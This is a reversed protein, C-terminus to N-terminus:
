KTKVVRVPIGDDFELKMARTKLYDRILHIDGPSVFRLSPTAAVIAKWEASGKTTHAAVLSLVNGLDINTGFGGSSPLGDNGVSPAWGTGHHWTWARFTGKVSPLDSDAPVIELIYFQNRCHSALTPYLKKSFSGASFVVPALSGGAATQIKPHHKHGHIVLWRGFKGTGLLELLRQGGVIEDYEGLEHESHKLPHHHCMLINILPIPGALKAALASLTAPEIRGREYEKKREGDDDSELGHYASSNLVVIRYNDGDLITFYDAWFGPSDRDSIPFNPVLGKLADFKELKFGRSVVDHNGVTAVVPKAGLKAAVEQLKQWVYKLPTPESYQTMDGPCLVVDATLRDDPNGILELLAMIPHQEVLKESASTSVFSGALDDVASVEVAHLDSLVAIRLVDSLADGSFEVDVDRQL